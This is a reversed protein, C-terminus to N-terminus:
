KGKLVKKVLSSTVLKVMKAESLQLKAIYETQQKKSSFDIRVFKLKKNSYSNEIIVIKINTHTTALWLLTKRSSSHTRYFHKEPFKRVRDLFVVYAKVLEDPLIAYLIPIKNKGLTLNIKNELREQNSSTGDYVIGKGKNLHTSLFESKGSAAGGCLLVVEKSNNTKLAESFQKDAIIRSEEHFRDAHKPDYGPLTEKVADSSIIVVM